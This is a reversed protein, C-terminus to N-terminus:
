GVRDNCGIEGQNLAIAHEQPRGSKTLERFRVSGVPSSLQRLRGKMQCTSRILGSITSRERRGNGPSGIRVSSAIWM